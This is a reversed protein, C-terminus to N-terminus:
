GEGDALLSWEAVARAQLILAHQALDLGALGVVPDLSLGAPDLCPIGSLVLELASSDGNPFHGNLAVAKDRRVVRM